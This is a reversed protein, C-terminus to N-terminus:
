YVTQCPVIVTRRIKLKQNKVQRLRLNLRKRVFNYVKLSSTRVKEQVIRETNLSLKLLKSACETLMLDSDVNFPLLYVTLKIESAEAVINLSFGSNYASRPEIVVSLLKETSHDEACLISSM